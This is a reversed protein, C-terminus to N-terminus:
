LIIAESLALKEEPLNKLFLYWCVAIIFKSIRSTTNRLGNEEVSIKCSYVLGSRSGRYINLEPQPEQQFSFRFSAGEIEMSGHSNSFNDYALHGIRIGYENKLVLKTRILGENEIMLVRQEHATELRVIHLEQRLRFRLVTQGDEKLYYVEQGALHNESIFNM